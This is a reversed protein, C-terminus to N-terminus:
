HSGNRENRIRKLRETQAQLIPIVEDLQGSATVYFVGGEDLEIANQKMSMVEAFALMEDLQENFESRVQHLGNCFRKFPSIGNM